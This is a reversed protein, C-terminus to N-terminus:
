PPAYLSFLACKGKRKPMWAVGVKPLLHIDLADAFVMVERAQWREAHFRIRALYEVQLPDNDTAVLKARKWVRGM